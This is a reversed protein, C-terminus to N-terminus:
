VWMLPTSYRTQTAKKAANGTKKLYTLVGLFTVTGPWRQDPAPSPHKTGQLMRRPDQHREVASRATGERWARTRGPKKKTRGCGTDAQLHISPRKQECRFLVVRNGPFHPRQRRLTHRRLQIRSGDSIAPTYRTCCEQSVDPLLLTANCDCASCKKAEQVTHKALTITRM